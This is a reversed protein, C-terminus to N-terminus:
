GKGMRGNHEVEHLVQFVNKDIKDEAVYEEVAAKLAQNVQLHFPHFLDLCSIRM